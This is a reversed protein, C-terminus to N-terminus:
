FAELGKVEFGIHDLSRGKTPAQAQEAKRFDVEGGPIMAALFQGRMSSTAGFTKVYWARLKEQDTSALHIHHFAVPTKLGKEEALEVRVKDPFNAIRANDTAFTVGAATLM